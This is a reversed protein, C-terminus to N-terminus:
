WGLKENSKMAKQHLLNKTTKGNGKSFNIKTLRVAVTLKKIYMKVECFFTVRFCQSRPVEHSMIPKKTTM